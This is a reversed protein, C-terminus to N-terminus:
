SVPQEIPLINFFVFFRKFPKLLKLGLSQLIWISSMVWIKSKCSCFKGLFDKFFCQWHKRSKGMPVVRLCNKTWQSVTKQSPFHPLNREFINRKQELMAQHLSVTHYILESGETQIACCLLGSSLQYVKSCVKSLMNSM